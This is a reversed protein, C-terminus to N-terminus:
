VIMDNEDTHKESINLIATQCTEQVSFMCYKMESIEWISTGENFPDM